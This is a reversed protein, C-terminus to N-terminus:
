GDAPHSASFMPCNKGPLRVSALVAAGVVRGGAAEVARVSERLTSGTTAVDDVLICPRNGLDPRLGMVGALGPLGITMSSAARASRERASLGKQGVARRVRSDLVGHTPRRRAMLVPAVKSRASGQIASLASRPATARRALVESPVFGRRRFARASSPVPIIVPAQGARAGSSQTGQGEVQRLLAALGRGLARGLVPATDLRGGNKFALILRAFEHRYAGSAICLRDSPWHPLVPAVNVPDASWRHVLARCVRCVPGRGLGCVACPQPLIVEIADTLTGAVAAAAADYTRGDRWM